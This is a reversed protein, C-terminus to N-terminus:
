ILGLCVRFWDWIARFWGQIFERFWGQVVKLRSKIFTSLCGFGSRYRHGDRNMHMEMDIEMDIERDIERDIGMDIEMDIRLDMDM